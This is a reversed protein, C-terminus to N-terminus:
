YLTYNKGTVINGPRAGALALLALFPILAWAWIEGSRGAWASLSRLWGSASSGPVSSQSSFADMDLTHKAHWGSASGHDSGYPARAGLRGAFAIVQFAVWEIWFVALRGARRALSNWGAYANEARAGDALWLVSAGLLAASALTVVPTFTYSAAIAVAVVALTTVCVVRFARVDSRRPSNRLYLM